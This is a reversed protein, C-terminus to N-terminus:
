AGAKAATLAAREFSSAILAITRDLTEDSQDQTPHHDWLLAYSLCELSCYVAADLAYVEHCEAGRDGHDCCSMVDADCPCRTPRLVRHAELVDVREVAELLAVSGALQQELSPATDNASEIRAPLTAVYESAIRDLRALQEYGSAAAAPRVTEATHISAAEITQM